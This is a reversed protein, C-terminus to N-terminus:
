NQYEAISCEAVGYFRSKRTVGTLSNRRVATMHMSHTVDTLTPWKPSGDWHLESSSKGPM